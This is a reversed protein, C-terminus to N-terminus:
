RFWFLDIYTDSMNWKNEKLKARLESFPKGSKRHMFNIFKNRSLNIEFM